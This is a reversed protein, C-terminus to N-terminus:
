DGPGAAMALKDWYLVVYKNSAPQEVRQLGDAGREGARDRGPRPADFSTSSGSPAAPRIPRRSRGSSFTSRNVPPVDHHWVPDDDRRHLRRRWLRLTSTMGAADTVTDIRGLADYTMTAVRGFPDTVSTIRLPDASDLYELTTVQGM